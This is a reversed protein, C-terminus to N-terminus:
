RFRFLNDRTPQRCQQAPFNTKQSPSNYGLNWSFIPRDPITRQAWECKGHIELIPFYIRCNLTLSLHSFSFLGNMPQYLEMGESVKTKDWRVEPKYLWENPFIDGLHQVVHEKELTSM